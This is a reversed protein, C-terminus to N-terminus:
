RLGVARLWGRQIPHRGLLVALIGAAGGPLSTNQDALEAIRPLAALLLGQLHRALRRAPELGTHLAFADAVALVGAAGHCFGLRDGASNTDLHDDDWAECLSAMAALGFDRLGADGLVLGAETLQWAVGPTGYCWGQRRWQTAASPARTVPRAPGAPAQPPASAFPWCVVGRESRRSHRVLYTAIRHIAEATEPPPGPPGDAGAGTGARLAPRLHREREWQARHAATLAALIGPLGHGLGFNIRGVNWPDATSRDGMRLRPLGDADCLRTLHRVLPRWWSPQAAPLSTMALVIGAPGALLDYDAFDVASERYTAAGSWGGLREAAGRALDRMRPEVAAAYRLGVANGALGNGFLGPQRVDRAQRAWALVAARATERRDRGSWDAATADTSAYLMALLPIGWDPESLPNPYRAHRPVGALVMDTVQAVSPVPAREDPRAPHRGPSRRPGPAIGPDPRHTRAAPAPAAWTLTRDARM